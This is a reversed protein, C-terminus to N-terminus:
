PTKLTEMLKDWGGMSEIQKKKEDLTSISRPRYGNLPIEGIVEEFLMDVASIIELVIDFRDFFREDKVLRKTSFFLFQRYQKQFAKEM